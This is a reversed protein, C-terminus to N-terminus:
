RKFENFHQVCPWQREAMSNHILSLANSQNKPLVEFTEQAGIGLFGGYVFHPYVYRKVGKSWLYGALRVDDAFFCGYPMHKTDFVDSSFFGRRYVIGQYGHLWGNCEMVQHFPYQWGYGGSIVNWWLANKNVLRALHLNWPVEECSFGLAGDDPAKTTLTEILHRDYIVDDDVSVICADNDLMPLFLTGLVKTAPGFDKGTIAIVGNMCQLSNNIEKLSHCPGFNHNFFSHVDVIQITDTRSELSVHVVIMDAVVTQHILSNIVQKSDFVRPGFTTLSAVILSCPSNKHYINYESIWYAFALTWMFIVAFVGRTLVKHRKPIANWLADM